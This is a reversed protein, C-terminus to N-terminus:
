DVYKGYSAKLRYLEQRALEWPQYARHAENFVATLEELRPKRPTLYNLVDQSQGFDSAYTISTDLAYNRMKLNDSERDALVKNTREQWADRFRAVIKAEGAETDAKYTELAVDAAEYKAKLTTDKVVPELTHIRAVANSIEEVHKWSKGTATIISDLETIEDSTFPKSASARILERYRAENAERKQQRVAQVQLALSVICGRPM